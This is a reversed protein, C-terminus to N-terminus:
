GTTPAIGRGGRIVGFARLVMAALSVLFFGNLVHNGNGAWVGQNMMAALLHVSSTFGLRLHLNALGPVIAYQSAWKMAALHYLGADYFADSGAARDAIWIACLLLLLLYARVDWIRLRAICAFLPPLAALCLVLGVLLVASLAYGDIPWRLHWAQLLGLITGLGIWFSWIFDSPRVDQLRCIRVWIWGYGLCALGYIAWTVLTGGLLACFHATMM